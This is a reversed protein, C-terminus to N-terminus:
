VGVKRIPRWQMHVKCDLSSSVINERLIFRNAIRFYKWNFDDYIKHTVISSKIIKNEGDVTIQEGNKCNNIIMTRNEISNHLELNGDKMIDIVLQPYIHGIEDSYDTITFSQQIKSFELDYTILNTYAYPSDTLFLYKLGYISNGINIEESKIATCNFFLDGMEKCYFQLWHYGDTRVLWRNINSVEEKTFANSNTKVFEITFQLPETYNYGSKYWKNSLPSKYTSLEIVSSTINEVHNSEFTCVLLGFDSSSKNDYIIKDAYIAM